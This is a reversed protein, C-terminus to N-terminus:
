QNDTGIGFLFFYYKDGAAFAMPIHGMIVLLTTFYKGLCQFFTSQRNFRIQNSTAPRLVRLRKELIGIGHNDIAVATTAMSTVSIFVRQLVKQPNGSCFNFQPGTAVAPILRPLEGPRLPILM